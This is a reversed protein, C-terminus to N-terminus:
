TLYGTCLGTYESAPRSLTISAFALNNQYVTFTLPTSHPCSFICCILPPHLSITDCNLNAHPCQVNAADGGRLVRMLCAGRGWATSLTHMVPGPAETLGPGVCFVAGEFKEARLMAEWKIQVEVASHGSVLRMMREIEQKKGGQREVQQTSRGVAARQPQAKSNPLQDGTLSVGM